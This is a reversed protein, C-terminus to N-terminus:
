KVSAKDIFTRLHNGSDSAAGSIIALYIQADTGGYLVEYTLYGM